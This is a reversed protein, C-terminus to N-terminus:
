LVTLTVQTNAKQAMGSEAVCKLDLGDLGDQSLKSTANGLPKSTACLAKSLQCVRDSDDPTIYGPPQKVFLQEEGDRRSHSTSACM